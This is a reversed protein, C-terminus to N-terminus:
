LESKGLQQIEKKAWSNTLRGNTTIVNRLRRLRTWKCGWCARANMIQTQVRAAFFKKLSDGQIQVFLILSAINSRLSIIRHIKVRATSIQSFKLAPQSVGYQWTSKYSSRQTKFYYRSCLDCIPLTMRNCTSIWGTVMERWYLYGHPNRWICQCIKMSSAHSWSSSLEKGCAQFSETRAKEDRNYTNLM